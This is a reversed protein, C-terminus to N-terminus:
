LGQLEPGGRGGAPVAFLDADTGVPPAAVLADGLILPFVALTGADRHADGVATTLLERYLVRRVAEPELELAEPSGTLAALTTLDNTPASGEIGVGCGTVLAALWLAHFTRGLMLRDSYRGSAQDGM